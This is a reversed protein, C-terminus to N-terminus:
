GSTSQAVRHVHYVALCGPEPSALAPGGAISIGLATMPLLGWQRMYRASLHRDAAERHPLSLPRALGM